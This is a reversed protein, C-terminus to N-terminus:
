LRNGREGVHSRGPGPILDVDGAGGENCAPEKDSLWQPLGGGTFLLSTFDCPRTQSKAVGHVTAWWAGGGM